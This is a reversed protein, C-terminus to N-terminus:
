ENSGLVIRRPRITWWSGLVKQSDSVLDLIEPNVKRELDQQRQYVLSCHEFV